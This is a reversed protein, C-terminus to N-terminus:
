DGGGCKFRKYGRLGFSVLAGARAFARGLRNSSDKLRDGIV